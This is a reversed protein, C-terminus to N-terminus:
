FPIFNKPKKICPLILAMATDRAIDASQSNGDLQATVIAGEVLLSVASLLKPDNKGLAETLFSQVMAKFRAKQQRCYLRGAHERNALEVTANIFACGRFGPENMWDKLAQFFAEIKSRGKKSHRAIASSFFEGVQAERYALVAM